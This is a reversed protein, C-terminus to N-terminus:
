ITELGKKIEALWSNHIYLRGNHIFAKKISSEKPNYFYKMVGGSSETGDFDFKEDFIAKFEDEFKETDNSNGSYSMSVAFKADDDGKGVKMSPLFFKIRDTFMKFQKLSSVSSSDANKLLDKAKELNSKGKVSGGSASINSNNSSNQPSVTESTLDGAYAITSNGQGDKKEFSTVIWNDDLVYEGNEKFGKNIGVIYNNYTINYGNHTESVTGNKIVEDITEPKIEPHKALIKVLGFGKLKKEDTIKGYVIDINGIGDKSYAAEVYGNKKEILKKIAEIGKWGYYRKGFIEKKKNFEEIQKQTSPKGANLTKKRKDVEEKLEKVIGLPKGNEDSFRHTNSMVIDFLEDISSARRVRGKLRAISNEAHKDQTDYVRVWKKNPMKKYKHGDQWTRIEGVTGLRGKMVMDDYFNLFNEAKRVEREEQADLIRLLERKFYELRSDKSLSENLSKRIELQNRLKELIDARCLIKGMVRRLFIPRRVNIIRWGGM